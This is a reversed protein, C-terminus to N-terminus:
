QTGRQFFHEIMYMRFITSSDDRSPDTEDKRSNEKMVAHLGCWGNGQAAKMGKKVCDLTIIATVLRKSKVEIMAFMAVTRKTAVGAMKSINISKGMWRAGDVEVTQYVLRPHAAPFCLNVLAVVYDSRNCFGDLGGKEVEVTQYVLRPHAAPFCLNVLEVVYDTTM